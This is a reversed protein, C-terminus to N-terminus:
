TSKASLEEAAVRVDDDDGRADPRLTRRGPGHRLSAACVIVEAMSDRLATAFRVHREDSSVHQVTQRKESYQRRHNEFEHVRATAYFAIRESEMESRGHASSEDVM